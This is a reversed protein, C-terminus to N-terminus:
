TAQSEVGMILQFSVPNTRVRRRWCLVLLTVYYLHVVPSGAFIMEFTLWPNVLFISTFVNTGFGLAMTKEEPESDISGSGSFAQALGLAWM